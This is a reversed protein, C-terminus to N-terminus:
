GFDGFCLARKRQWPHVCFTSLAYEKKKTCGFGGKSLTEWTTHACTAIASLKNAGGNAETQLINRHKINEEAVFKFCVCICACANGAVVLQVNVAQIGAAAM